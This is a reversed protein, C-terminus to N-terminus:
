VVNVLRILFQTDSLYFKERSWTWHEIIFRDTLWKSSSKMLENVCSSSLFRNLPTIKLGHKLPHLMKKSFTYKKREFTNNKNLTFNNNKTRQVRWGAGAGAGVGVINNCYFPHFLSGVRGGYFSPATFAKPRYGNTFNSKGEDKM